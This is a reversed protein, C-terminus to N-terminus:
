RESLETAAEAPRPEAEWQTDPRRRGDSVTRPARDGPPTADAAPVADAGDAAVAEVTGAADAAADEADNAAAEASAAKQAAKLSALLGSLSTALQIWRTSSVAGLTRLPRARALLVGGLLGALVIRGPTWAERWRQKLAARHGTTRALRGDVLQEAREVRRKLAEFNM